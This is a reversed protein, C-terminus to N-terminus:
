NRYDRFRLITRGIRQALTNLFAETNTSSSLVTNGLSILSSTDAVTLASSGFAEDNVENVLAYIQETTM